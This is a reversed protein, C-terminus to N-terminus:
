NLYSDMKTLGDVANDFNENSEVVKALKESDASYIIKDNENTVVIFGYELLYSLRTKLEDESIGAKNALFDSHKGGSELEALIDSLEPSFLLEVVKDKDFNESLLIM